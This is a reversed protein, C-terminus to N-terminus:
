FRPHEGVMTARPQNHGTREVAGLVVSPVHRATLVAMARDVDAPAVVAVMGIGMNFAQEMEEREIRGHGAIYGFVPLPTWARRDMAATLGPPIIRGVNGALGGGTIHAYAHVDSERALRLCDLAYIRTPELLEEGLTKGFEEVHGELSLRAIDLLVHRVLSYGNSHVGSSEMGVLVDGPRVRDSGLIDDAEVIGVATAALDYDQPAMLGPHEATEGGVLACGAKVCGDAIGSVIAAVRHPDLQGCAIYDQLFLPEAGCAVLDDVVMAVLDVGITTHIDMAQAIASKTGVGDSSSALVPERFRKVPLRFLSAFGGIGGIVEPRHTKETFPKILDVAKEGAAISVGSGAYTAGSGISRRHHGPADNNM